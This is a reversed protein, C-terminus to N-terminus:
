TIPKQSKLGFQCGHFKAKELGFKKVFEAVEQRGWYRCGSPWENSVTGGRSKVIYAIKMFNKWLAAFIRFHETMREKHGPLHANWEQLPSGGTCPISGWLHVNPRTLAAHKAKAYGKITTLDDLSQLDSWTPTRPHVVGWGLIAKAAFNLSQSEKPLLLLLPLEPIKMTTKM